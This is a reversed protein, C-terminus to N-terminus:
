GTIRRYALAVYVGAGMSIVAGIAALILDAFLQFLETNGLTLALLRVVSALVLGAIGNVMVSLLMVIAFTALLRGFNHRALTVVRKVADIPGVPETAIVPPALLMPASIVVMLVGMLAAAVGIQSTVGALMLVIGLPVMLLMGALTAVFGVVIGALVATLMRAAARRLAEGVSIGPVLVVLSIALNGLVFILLAPVLLLLGSASTPLMGPTSAAGGLAFKVIITGVAFTAMAIPLLLAGERRIFATMEEWTTGLSFSGM